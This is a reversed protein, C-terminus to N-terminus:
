ANNREQFKGVQSLVYSYKSEPKQDNKNNTQFKILAALQM